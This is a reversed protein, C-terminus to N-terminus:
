SDRRVWVQAERIQGVPRWREQDVPQERLLVMLGATEPNYQQLEASSLPTFDINWGQATLVYEQVMSAFQYARARAVDEAVVVVDRGPGPTPVDVHRLEKVWRDHIEMAMSSAGISAGGFLVALALVSWRGPLQSVGVVAVFALGTVISWMVIDFDTLTLPLYIVGAINPEFPPLRDDPLMVWVLGALTAFTALVTVVSRRRAGADRNAFLAAVGLAALVMVVPDIYRGYVLYDARVPEGRALKEQIGSALTAASTTFVAAAVLGTLVVTARATSTRATGARAAAVLWLVGLVACGFSAAVLYWAQGLLVRALQRYFGLESLSEHVSGSPSAADSWLRTVVVADVARGGAYMAVTALLTLVGTWVRARRDLHEARALYIGLCVLWCVPVLTFRGHVFPMAGAVAGALVPAAGTGRAFAYHALVLFTALAVAGLAESWTFSTTTTLAPFLLAVVFGAALARSDRIGLRRVFVATLAAAVVALVALVVLAARYRATPGDFLRVVPALLVGTGLPYAPMDRMPMPPGVRAIFRAISWTGAEDPMIVPLTAGTIVRVRLVVAAVVAVAM